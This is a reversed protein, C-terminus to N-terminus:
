VVGARFMDHINLAGVLKKEEDLVLLATIGHEEMLRVARAALDDQRITKGGPTMVEGIPTDHIDSRRDLMRLLPGSPCTRLRVSDKSYEELWDKPM